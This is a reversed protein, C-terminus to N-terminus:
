HKTEGFEIDVRQLSIHFLKFSFGVCAGIVDM